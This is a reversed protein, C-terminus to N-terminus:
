SPMAQLENLKEELELITLKKHPESKMKMLYGWRDPHLLKFWESAALPDKHWKHYHCYYCLTIGNKDDWRLNLHRRPVIHAMHIVCDEKGCWQCKRGDRAKIYDAFAKDLKTILRKRPTKM